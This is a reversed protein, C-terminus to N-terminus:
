DIEIRQKGAYINFRERSLFGILTIDFEVAMAVALSSPAGVAAVIPIRAVLAKQLIEYSTRGSIMLLSDLLPTNDRRVQAGILKDVANHRGVDERIDIPEGFTSYLGAAHVGGTEKFVHQSAQMRDPLQRVVKASIYPSAHPLQPFSNLALTELAAKGCVGCSSTSIFKRELREQNLEVSPHLEVRIVNEASPDSWNRSAGAIELVQQANSIVGEAYLFGIALDVDDGPSRMTITLTQQRRSDTPGYGVRIELPEEVALTDDCVSVSHSSIRHIEVCETASFATQMTVEKNIKM